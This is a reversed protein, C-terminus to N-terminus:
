KYTNMKRYESPTQGKVKKFVTQFYSQSSFSLHISIDALSKDTYTLYYCAKKIKEETIFQTLTKGTEEKFKTFLYHPNIHLAYAINESTLKSNINNQIYSLTNNITPNKTKFDKQKKVLKTFEFLSNIIITHFDQINTVNDMKSLYFQKTKETDANPVGCKLALTEAAFVSGFATIKMEHLTSSQSGEFLPMSSLNFLLDSLGELDGNEVCYNMKHTFDEKSLVDNSEIYQLEASYQRKALLMKEETESDYISTIEEKSLIEDNLIVNINVLLSQFGHITLPRVANIYEFMKNQTDTSLQTEFLYDYIDQKCTTPAAIPGIFIFEKKLPNAVIGLMILSSHVYYMVHKDPHKFFVHSLREFIYELNNENTTISFPQFYQIPTNPHSYVIPINLMKHLTKLYYSIKEYNM